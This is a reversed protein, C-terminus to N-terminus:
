LVINLCVKILVCTYENENPNLLNYHTLTVSIFIVAKLAIKFTTKIPTGFQVSTNLVKRFDATAPSAM